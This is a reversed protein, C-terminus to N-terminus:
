RDVQPYLFVDLFDEILLEYLWELSLLKWISVSCILKVETSKSVLDVISITLTKQSASLSGCFATFLAIGSITWAISSIM